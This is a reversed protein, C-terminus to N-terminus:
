SPLPSLGLSPSFIPLRDQSLRVKPCPKGLKSREGRV